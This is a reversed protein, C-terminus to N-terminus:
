AVRAYEYSANRVHSNFFSGHSDAAMLGSHTESPVGFYQYVEGDVFEVELTAAGEDYGVSALTSSSVQERKM